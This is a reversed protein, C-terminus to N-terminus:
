IQKFENSATRSLPVPLIWGQTWPTLMPQHRAPSACISSTKQMRGQVFVTVCVTPQESPGIVVLMALVM